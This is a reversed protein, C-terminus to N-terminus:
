KLSIKVKLQGNRVMIRIVKEWIQQSPDQQYM